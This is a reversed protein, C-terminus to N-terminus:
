TEATFFLMLKVLFKNPSTLVCRLQYLLQWWLVYLFFGYYKPQFQKSKLFKTWYCLSVKHFLPVSNLLVRVSGLVSYMTNSAIWTIVTTKGYSPSATVPENLKAGERSIGACNQAKIRFNYMQGDRLETAEYKCTNGDITAIEVFDVSSGPAMEIIYGTTPAGGDYRPPNWGLTVRGRDTYLVQLKEPSSPPETYSLYSLPVLTCNSPILLSM